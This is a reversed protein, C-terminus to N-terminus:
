SFIVKRPELGGNKKVRFRSLHCHPCREESFQRWQKSHIKPFLHQDCPCVHREYEDLDGVGVLKNFKYISRPLNNGEPCCLEALYRLLRDFPEDNVRGSHKWELLFYLHQMLSVRAGPFIHEGLRARHWATSGEKNINDDEDEAEIVPPQEFQDFFFDGWALEDTGADQISATDASSHDSLYGQLDGEEEQLRQLEQLAELTEPLPASRNPQGEEALAANTPPAPQENVQSAVTTGTGKGAPPHVELHNDEEIDDRTDCIFM